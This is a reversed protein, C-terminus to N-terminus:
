RRIAIRLRGEEPKGQPTEAREVGARPGLPDGAAERQARHIEEAV